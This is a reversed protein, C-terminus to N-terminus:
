KEKVKLSERLPRKGVESRILYLSVFAFVSTLVVFMSESYSWFASAPVTLDVGGIKLSIQQIPVSSLLRVFALLAASLTTIRFFFWIDKAGTKKKYILYSLGLAELFFLGALASLSTDIIQLM